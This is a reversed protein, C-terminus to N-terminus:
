LKKQKYPETRIQIIKYLLVSSNVINGRWGGRFKACNKPKTKGNVNRKTCFDVLM